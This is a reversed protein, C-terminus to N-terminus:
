RSQRFDYIINMEAICNSKGQDPLGAHSPHQNHEYDDTDDSRRERQALMVAGVSRRATDILTPVAADHIVTWVGHEESNGYGHNADGSIQQEAHEGESF